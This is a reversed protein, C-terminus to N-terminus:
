KLNNWKADFQSQLKETLHAKLGELTERDKAKEILKAMREEEKTRAVEELKNDFTFGITDKRNLDAGFIKGLHDCADKIAISKATGFAMSLAGNNINALDAPSSGKKVQLNISGIGDNYEMEGSVIDQYWVRVVVYVGNFATGERLIEIRTKKFLKRLLFEVKDIPLYNYNDIFPHKKVWNQPPPQNLVVAVQDQALVIATDKYLEQISPLKNETITLTTENM